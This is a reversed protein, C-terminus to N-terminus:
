GREGGNPFKIKIIRSKAIVVDNSVTRVTLFIDDVNLLIGSISKDKNDEESYLIWCEKGIRESWDMVLCRELNLSPVVGAM